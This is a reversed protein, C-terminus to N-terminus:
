LGASVFHSRPLAFMARVTLLLEAFRALLAVIGLETRLLVEVNANNATEDPAVALGILEEITSVAAIHEDLAVRLEEVYEAM